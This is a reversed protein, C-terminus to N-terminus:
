KKGPIDEDKADLSRQLVRIYHVIAWRDDQNIQKDYAPMINQGNTIVHYISGDSWNRVKDTHLSPPNPFQGRLRSDGKGYYGHCPSCYTDFRKEGLKLVNENVSLPNSLLKVLSDPLGKYEYPIFGRAVTGEVPIRMSYGDAFFTSPTQPLVKPQSWMFDFPTQFLVFNLTFYTVGAVVVAIVALLGIFKFDIIPTKVNSEEVAFRNILSIDKSGLEEFLKIVESENFNIDNAFVTVGFRDSSVRKMYETYLLPNNNWPLKNFIVLMFFMTFLAGLLITLEFTIPISPAISFFPKGGIISKYDIDSMWWIMLLATLTGVAGFVFTARGLRTPKLQMTEDMGHVPYPSHVDFKTYGSAAVKAAAHIIDNPKEFLAGVAYLKDSRKDTGPNSNIESIKNRIKEFM